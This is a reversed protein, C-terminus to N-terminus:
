QGHEDTLKALLAEFAALDQTKDFFHDAGLSLCRERYEQQGFNTLVIVKTDPYRARIHKLVSLGSGQRLRLDLVTADPRYRELHDRADAENDTEAVVLLGPISQFLRHLRERLIRSDEVLLMRM